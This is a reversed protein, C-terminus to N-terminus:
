ESPESSTSQSVFPIEATWARAGDTLRVRALWDRRGMTCVPLLATGSWDSDSQRELRYRNQGMDMGVMGFELEVAAAESLVDGAIVRLQVPFAELAIVPPGLVLELRLADGRAVCAQYAADCPQEVELVVTGARGAPNSPRGLWLLGALVAGALVAAVLRLGTRTM